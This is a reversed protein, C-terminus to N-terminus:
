PLLLIDGPRITDSALDNVRRIAAVGARPDGADDASAFRRLRKGPENVAAGEFPWAQLDGHLLRDPQRRRKGLQQHCVKETSVIRINTRSRRTAHACPGFASGQQGFKQLVKM